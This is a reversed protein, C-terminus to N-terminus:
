NALIQTYSHSLLKTAYKLGLIRKLYLHVEDGHLHDQVGNIIQTSARLLSHQRLMWNNGRMQKCKQVYHLQRLSEIQLFM